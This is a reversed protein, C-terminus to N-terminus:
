NLHNNSHNSNIQFVKTSGVITVPTGVEVLEFIQDIDENSIAICGDTWNVGKGGEGHIEILGGIKADAPIEANRIASYFRLWDEENPYNLQLAKYFRTERGRRKKTIIYKGEPTRKDGIQKKTGIWNPGMEIPIESRLTDAQYVRCVHEMKDVIIVTKGTARSLDRTEKIWEQWAPLAGLYEAIEKSLNSDAYAIHGAAEELRTAATAYEKRSLLYDGERVLLEGRIIHERLETTVPVQDFKIRYQEIQNHLYM